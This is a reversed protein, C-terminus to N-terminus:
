LTERELALFLSAFIFANPGHAVLLYGEDNHMFESAQHTHAHAQCNAELQALSELAQGVRPDDSVVLIHYGDEEQWIHVHQGRLDNLLKQGENSALVCGTRELLWNFVTEAPRNRPNTCVQELLRTLLVATPAETQATSTQGIDQLFLGLERQLVQLATIQRELAHYRTQATEIVARDNLDGGQWGQLLTKIDALSFGLHQARQIFHITREVEPQYLRYGAESREVPALLEQEEYYRLASTRLGTRKALQGITLKAMIINGKSLSIKPM